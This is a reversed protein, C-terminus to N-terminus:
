FRKKRRRVRAKETRVVAPKAEYARVFDIVWLTVILLFSVLKSRM